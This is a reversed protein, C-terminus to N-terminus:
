IGEMPPYAYEVISFTAEEGPFLFFLASRLAPGESSISCMLLLLSSSKSAIMPLLRQQQSNGLGTGSDTVPQVPRFHKFRFNVAPVASSIIILCLTPSKEVVTRTVRSAPASTYMSTLSSCLQCSVERGALM